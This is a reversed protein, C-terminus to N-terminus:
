QRRNCNIVELWGLCQHFEPFIQNSPNLRHRCSCILLGIRIDEDLTRDGEGGRLSDVADFVQVPGLGAKLRPVSEPHPNHVHLVEVRDEEM